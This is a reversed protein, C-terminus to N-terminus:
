EFNSLILLFDTKMWINQCIYWIQSIIYCNGNDFTDWVYCWKVPKIFYFVGKPRTASINSHFCPNELLTIWGISVRLHSCSFIRFQRYFHTILYFVLIFLYYLPIYAIMYYRSLIWFLFLFETCMYMM